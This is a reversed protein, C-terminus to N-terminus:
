LMTEDWLPGLGVSEALSRTRELIRRREAAYARAAAANHALERDVAALYDRIPPTADLFAQPTLRGARRLAELRDLQRQAKRLALELKRAPKM